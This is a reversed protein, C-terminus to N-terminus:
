LQGIYRLTNEKEAYFISVFTGIDSFKSRLTVVFANKFFKLPSQFGDPDNKSSHV